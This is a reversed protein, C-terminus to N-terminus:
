AAGSVRNSVTNGEMGGKPTGSAKTPATLAQQTQQPMAAMALATQQQDYVSKERSPVVDDVSM